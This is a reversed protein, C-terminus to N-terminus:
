SKRLAHYLKREGARVWQRLWHGVDAIPRFNSLLWLLAAVLATIGIPRWSTRLAALTAAGFTPIDDQLLVVMLVLLTATAATRVHNGYRALGFEDSLDAFVRFPSDVSAAGDRRWQYIVLKPAASLSTTRDLYREWARGELMRVYHVPPSTSRLQWQWPAIVFLRLREIPILRAALAQGDPLNWVERADAVRLDLLAGNRAFLSRKWKWVRGKNTVRFRVRIYASQSPQLAPEVTLRWLSFDKQSAASDLTAGARPVHLLQLPGVGYDIANATFMAPKSFLLAANHPDRVQSRLDEASDSRTGFPLAMQLGSLPADPHARLHLGVDFLFETRWCLLGLVWLNIHCEIADFTGRGPEPAVGFFGM